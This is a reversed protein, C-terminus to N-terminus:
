GNKLAEILTKKDDARMLTEGILVGDVNNEKLIRVDEPTKIGSESIFIIDEPVNKRLNVSNRIDVTFDKLNRNNVGIIRAGANLAREIEKEDHTEVISSLGLEDALELYEKLQNDDLISVILLIASAGILKAEYIMYPSITFDKRLIPTKVNESIEKLINDSGQFFYPETLVSIASVGAEEYEKAIDLYDFDEAILGKSPSARKVESIIAIPKDKLAAEFPFDRTIELEEVQEKIKELSKGELREKTKETIETLM